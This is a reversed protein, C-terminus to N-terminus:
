ESGYWMEKSARIVEFLKTRYGEMHIWYPLDVVHMQNRLRCCCQAVCAGNRCRTIHEINLCIGGGTPTKGLIRVFAMSERLPQTLCGM